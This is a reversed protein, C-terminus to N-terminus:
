LRIIDISLAYEYLDLLNLEKSFREKIDGLTKANKVIDLILLGYKQQFDLDCEIWTKKYNELLVWEEDGGTLWYLCKRPELDECNCNFKINWFHPDIEPTIMMIAVAEAVDTTIFDGIQYFSIKEGKEIKVFNPETLVKVINRFQKKSM